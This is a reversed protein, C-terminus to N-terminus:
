PRGSPPTPVRRLTVPRPPVIPNVVQTRRAAVIRPASLFKVGVESGKRWVVQCAAELGDLPILLEFTDPVTMSGEIRLRAGTDSIDRVTCNVTIRRENSAAIGAKLIRRRPSMRHDGDKVLTNGVASFPVVTAGARSPADL